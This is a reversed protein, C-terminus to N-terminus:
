KEFKKRTHLTVGAVGVMGILALGYFWVHSHDGTDPSEAAKKVPKEKSGSQNDTKQDTHKPATYHNRFTIIKGDVPKGDETIAIASTLKGEADETVTYTIQYVSQDFRYGDIKENQESITYIYSGPETFTISGFEVPGAGKRTITKVGQESGEPMPESAKDEKMTFSFESDEAPQDGTIVKSVPPDNVTVSSPEVPKESVHQYSLTIGSAATNADKGTEDQIGDWSFNMEQRINSGVLSHFNGHLTGSITNVKGDYENKVKVDPVIISLYDPTSMVAQYLCELHNYNDKQLNDTNFTMTITLQNQATDKQIDTIDYKGCETLQEDYIDASSQDTYANNYTNDAPNYSQLKWIDSTETTDIDSVDISEPFTLVATFVSETGNLTLYKGAPYLGNFTALNYNQQMQNKIPHTGIRLGLDYTGGPEVSYIADKETDFATEGSKRIAIDGDVNVSSVSDEANVSVPASLGGGFALVGALLGAIWLKKKRM